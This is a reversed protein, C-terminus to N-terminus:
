ALYVFYDMNSWGGHAEIRAIRMDHFFPPIALPKNSGHNNYEFSALADHGLWNKPNIYVKGWEGKSNVFAVFQAVTCPQKMEVNYHSSCDGYPGGTCMFKFLNNNSM